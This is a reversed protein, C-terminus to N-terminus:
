LEASVSYLSAYSGGGTTTAVGSIGIRSADLLVVTPQQFATLDRNTMFTATPTTRMPTPLNITTGYQWGVTTNGIYTLEIGPRYYRHCLSLELGIPRQEFPTAVSGEELQVGTIYFIDGNSVAGTSFEVTMSTTGTPVVFSATHQQWTTSVTKSGSVLTSGSFLITEDEINTSYRIRYTAASINTNNAKVWFSLTATKGRLGKFNVFEIHQGIQTFSASGTMSLNLSYKYGNPVNTSRNKTGVDGNIQAKWRDATYESSGSFSTDRQWIDFGGNIIYNKFGVLNSTTAVNENNENNENIVVGDIQSANSVPNNGMDIGNGSIVIAM